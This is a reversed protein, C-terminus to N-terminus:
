EWYGVMNARAMWVDVQSRFEAPVIQLTETSHNYKASKIRYTALNDIGGAMIEEQPLWDTIRVVDGGRVAWLPAPTGVSDYVRNVTVEAAVRLDKASDLATHAVKYAGTYAPVASGTVIMGPIALEKTVVRGYEAQSALDNLTFYEYNTGDQSYAVEMRNCLAEPNPQIKLDNCDKTRILWNVTDLPEVFDIKKDTWVGWNWNNAGNLENLCDFYTTYPSFEFVTGNLHNYDTTEITGAVLEIDGDALLPTGIFTSMKYGGGGVTIDATVGLDNLRSGWGQCTINFTDPRLSRAPIDLFGEWVISDSQGIVVHNFPQLEPYLTRIPKHLVFSAVTFGGPNVNEFNLDEYDSEHLRALEDTGDHIRIFM